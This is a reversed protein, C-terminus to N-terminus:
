IFAIASPGTDSLSNRECGQSGFRSEVCGGGIGAARLLTHRHGSKPHRGTRSTPRFPRSADMRAAAYWHGREVRVLGEVEPAMEDSSMSSTGIDRVARANPAKSREDSLTQRLDKRAIDIRQSSVACRYRSEFRIFGQSKLSLARPRGM